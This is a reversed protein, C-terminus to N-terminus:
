REELNKRIKLVLKRDFKTYKDHPIYRDWENLRELEKKNFM